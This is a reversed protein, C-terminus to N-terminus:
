VFLLKNMCMAWSILNTIFEYNGSFPLLVLRFTDYLLNERFKVLRRSETGSDCAHAFARVAFVSLIVRSIAAIIFM